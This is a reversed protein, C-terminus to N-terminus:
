SLRMDVLKPSMGVSSYLLQFTPMLLLCGPPYLSSGTEVVESSAHNSIRARECIVRARALGYLLLMEQLV